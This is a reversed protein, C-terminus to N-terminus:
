NRNNLPNEVTRSGAPPSYSFLGAPFGAVPRVNSLAITYWSESDARRISLRRLTSNNGWVVRVEQISQSSDIARGIAQTGSVRYEFGSLLWGLGGSAGGMPQKGATHSGPNYVVLSRGNGAIVRGDGLRLHVRGSQYSLEGSLTASGSGMSITARFSTLGAMRAVVARVESPAEQARVSSGSLSLVLLALLLLQGTRVPNM